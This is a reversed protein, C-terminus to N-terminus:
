HGKAQKNKLVSIRQLGTTRSNVRFWTPRSSLSRGAELEWTSPNFTHVVQHYAWTKHGVSETNGASQTGRNSSDKEGVGEM